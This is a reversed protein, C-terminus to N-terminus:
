RQDALDMRAVLLGPQHQRQWLFRWQWRHRRHERQSDVPTVQMYTTMTGTTERHALHRTLLQMYAYVLAAFLPFLATWRFLDAGPRLMVIVGVLGLGVGLWRRPGVPEGLHLASLATILLPAIFFLAVNEAFPMAALGLFFCSNAIVLLGGRLFLLPFNRTALQRLGGLFHVVALSLLLAVLARVAMIQHLAYDAHFQKVLADQLSLVLMAGVVSGIGLVDRSM